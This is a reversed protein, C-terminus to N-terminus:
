RMRHIPYEQYRYIASGIRVVDDNFLRCGEDTVPKDNVITPNEPDVNAAYYNGQHDTWIETHRPAVGTDKIVVDALLPDSGITFRREGLPVDHGTVPQFDRDLLILFAAMKASPNQHNPSIQIKKKKDQRVKVPQTVPDKKSGPASKIETELSRSRWNLFLVASLVGAAFIVGLLLYIGGGNLFDAWRNISPLVIVLNVPLENTQATLGLEDTIEAQIKHTGNAKYGSLDWTFREFPASTNGSVVRGDVILKSSTINRTHGDPYEIIVEVVQDLPTLHDLQDKDTVTTSRIIETPLNVFIPNPPQITINFPVPLSTVTQDKLKIQGVLNHQGSQNIGSKIQVQYISRLPELLSSILPMEETGSFAIFQGGTQIALQRLEEARPDTYQNKSAIMWVFIHTKAQNARSIVDTLVPGLPVEPLPAIYLIAKEVPVNSSYGLAIDVAQGLLDPSPVSDKFNPTFSIFATQWATIDKLHTQRIGTNTLLGLDDLTIEKQKEAWLNLYQVLYEYRTIGLTNRISFSPAANIAVTVQLGIKMERLDSIVANKGDALISVNDTTLGSVFSGDATHIDLNAEIVPFKTLDVNSLVATNEAQAFAQGPLIMISILALLVLKKM